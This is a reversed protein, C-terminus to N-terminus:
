EDFGEIVIPRGVQQGRRWVSGLWIKSAGRQRKQKAVALQVVSGKGFLVCSEAVLPNTPSQQTRGSRLVVQDSVFRITARVWIMMKWILIQKAKGPGFVITAALGGDNMPAMIRKMCLQQSRKVDLLTQKSQGTYRENACKHGALTPLKAIPVCECVTGQTRTIANPVNAAM